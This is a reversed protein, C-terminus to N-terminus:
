SNKMSTLAVMVRLNVFFVYPVVEVQVTQSLTNLVELLLRKAQSKAFGHLHDQARIRWVRIVQVVLLLDVDRL